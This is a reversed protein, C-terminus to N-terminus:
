WEFGLKARIRRPEIMIDGIRLLLGLNQNDLSILLSEVEAVTMGDCIHCPLTKVERGHKIQRRLKEEVLRGHKLIGAATLAKADDVAMRIVGFEGAFLNRIGNVNLETKSFDGYERQKKPVLEGTEKDLEVAVTASGELVAMASTSTSTSTEM